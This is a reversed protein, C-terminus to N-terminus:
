YIREIDPVLSGGTAWAIHVAQHAYSLIKKNLMYSKLADRHLVGAFSACASPEIYYRESEMLMKVFIDLREDQVTMVGSIMPGIIKGVLRSPRSVALGDARTKGELGFDQVCVEDHRGTALGLLMSCAHVPEAFFCHVNDGFAEKLGFTIGGPGGGIGCPLYVFLPHDADVCVGLSDLQKKLREGAVSYGLFLDTSNEDDVFYSLPDKESKARGQSVALCFDGEYEIVTVGKNRLMDKKWQKADSSMHVIVKFGLKASIIGISLGLNGTSGVQITYKHFLDMCEKTMLIRYDDTEKLYGNSIALREAYKLIEYIGGRAKVSGAIPLHSDMKLFLRGSIRFDFEKELAKKMNPIEKLPSEIFGGSDMTEPFQECIYPAFRELRRSADAIDEATLTMNERYSECSVMKDNLWLTEQKDAADSIAQVKGCWFEKSFEM